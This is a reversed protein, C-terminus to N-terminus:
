ESPNEYRKRGGSAKKTEEGCERGRGEKRKTWKAGEDGVQSADSVEVREVRKRGRGIRGVRGRTMGPGGFEGEKENSGWIAPKSKEKKSARKKAVESWTVRRKKNGEEEGGV